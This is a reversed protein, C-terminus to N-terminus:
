KFRTKVRLGVSAPQVHNTKGYVSDKTLTTSITHTHSGNSSTSGTWNRSADFAFGNSGQVSGQGGWDRSSGTGYIAGNAGTLFCRYGNWATGTINM